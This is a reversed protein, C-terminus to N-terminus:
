VLGDTDKHTLLLKNNKKNAQLDIHETKKALAGAPLPLSYRISTHNGNTGCNKRRELRACSKGSYAIRCVV